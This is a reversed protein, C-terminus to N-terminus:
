RDLYGGKLMRQIYKGVIDFELNVVDGKQLDKFNTHTLTFPIIHVSFFGPKSDVVTLSVGNVCISGKEVTLNGKDPDYEFNFVTSGDRAEIGSCIGTQDVHGQVIHGDFRGSAPMAREINLFDGVGVKGLCTKNLTEEILTVTYCSDFVQTVTLCAGNHSVSQDPKLESTFPAEIYFHINGKEPEIKVVKGLGEIIGTFM